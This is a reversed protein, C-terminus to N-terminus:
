RTRSGSFCNSKSPGCTSISATSAPTIVETITPSRGRGSSSSSWASHDGKQNDRRENEQVACEDRCLKCDDARGPGGDVALRLISVPQSSRNLAQELIRLLLIAIDRGRLQADRDCAESQAHVALVDEGVQEKVADVAM